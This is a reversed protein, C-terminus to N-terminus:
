LKEILNCDIYVLTVFIAKELVLRIEFMSFLSQVRCQYLLWLLLLISIKQVPWIILHTLFTKLFILM